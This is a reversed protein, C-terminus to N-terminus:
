KARRALRKKSRLLVVLDSFEQPLGPEMCICPAGDGSYTNSIEPCAIPYRYLCM